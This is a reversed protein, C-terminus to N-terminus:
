YPFREFIYRITEDANNDNINIYINDDLNVWMNISFNENNEIFTGIIDAVEIPNVYSKEWILENGIEQINTNYFNNVFKQIEGPKESYLRVISSM